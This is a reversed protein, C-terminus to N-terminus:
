DESSEEEYVIIKKNILPVLNVIVENPGFDRVSDALDKSMKLHCYPIEYVDEYKKMARIGADDNDFITIVKKYRRIFEEMAPRKIMSNESDPAIVDIKLKLSKLAMLDKLSSTIVLYDHGELQEYGQIYDDVKIFKKEQVKPQYIKYLSGDEKFYGYIYKGYIELQKDEGDETKRMVYGQLPVVNHKSLLRTGINFKTWFYQDATTWPREFTETVKYRTYERFEKVDYGGNNHLIYENYSEIIELTAEFYNLAKLEKVLDIASGGKDTSFDKFKYRTKSADHYICMSPTRDNPNFLSKIKIDQGILKEPLKCYHEFIWTEPVDKVNSVLNKTKLM